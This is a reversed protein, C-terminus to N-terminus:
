VRRLDRRVVLDLVLRAVREPDGGGLGLGVEAIDGEVDLLLGTEGLDGVRSDGVDEESALTHRSLDVDLRSTALVVRELDNVDLDLDVRELEGNALRLM